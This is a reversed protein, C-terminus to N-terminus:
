AGTTPSRSSSYKGAEEPTDGERRAAVGGGDLTRVITQCLVGGYQVPSPHRNIGMPSGKTGQTRSCPGTGIDQGMSSCRLRSKTEQLTNMLGM